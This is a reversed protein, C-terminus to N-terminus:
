GLREEAIEFVDARCPMVVLQPNGFSKNVNSDFLLRCAKEKGSPALKVPIFRRSSGFMKEPYGLMHSQLVPIVGEEVEKPIVRGLDPYRADVLKIGTFGIRQENADRHIAMPEKSFILETTEARAPIKGEFQVIVNRKTNFGHEMRLAVYGDTAELYKPTIHVGNLYYRVDSKAVCVLAARLLASKIKM